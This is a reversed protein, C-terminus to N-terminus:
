RLPPSRSCDVKPFRSLSALVAWRPLSFPLVDPSASSLLNAQSPPPPILQDGIPSPSRNFALRSHRHARAHLKNEYAPQGPVAGGEGRAAKAQPAPPTARREQLTSYSRKCSRRTLYARGVRPPRVGHENTRSAQPDRGEWRGGQHFAVKSEKSVQQQPITKKLKEVARRPQPM